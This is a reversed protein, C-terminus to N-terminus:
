SVSVVSGSHLRAVFLMMIPGAVGRHLGLVLLLHMIFSLQICSVAHDFQIISKLQHLDIFM